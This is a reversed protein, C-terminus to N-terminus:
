RQSEGFGGPWELSQRRWRVQSEGVSGQKGGGSGQRGVKGRVGVQDRGEGMQGQRGVQDRGSM